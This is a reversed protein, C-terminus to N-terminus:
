EDNRGSKPVSGSSAEKENEDESFIAPKKTTQKLQKFFIDEEEEEESEIIQRQRASKLVDEIIEEPRPGRRLLNQFYENDEADSFEIPNSLKPAPSPISIKPTPIVPISSSKVPITKSSRNKM